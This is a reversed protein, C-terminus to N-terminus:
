EVLDNSMTRTAARNDGSASDIEAVLTAVAALRGARVAATVPTLAHDVAALEHRTTAATTHGAAVALMAELSVVKALMVAAHRHAKTSGQPVAVEEALMLAAIRARASESTRALDLTALRATAARIAQDLDREADFLSAPLPASPVLWGAERRTTRVRPSTNTRLVSGDFV